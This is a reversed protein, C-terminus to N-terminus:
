QLSLIKYKKNQYVSTFDSVHTNSVIWYQIAYRRSLRKVDKDQLNQWLTDIREESNKDSITEDTIDFGLMKLRAAWPEAFSRDWLMAAGDKWTVFVSRKSLGRFMEPEEGMSPNVLFCAEIPTERKTWDAVEMISKSPTGMFIMKRHYLKYSGILVVILTLMMAIRVANGESFLNEWVLPISFLIVGGLILFSSISAWLFISSFFGIVRFPIHGEEDEEIKIAFMSILAIAGFCYYLDTGRAPHMILMVPSKIIYAAIFAFSLWGLGAITWTAGHKFLKRAKLRNQYLVAAVSFILIGFEIFTGRGWTLPYLHHPFRIRSATLWLNDNGSARGLSSLTLILAPSSLIVSLMLPFIWNKWRHRYDSDCLFALLFYTAAFAGYMSNLNFAISFWIAWYIRNDKHFAATALLLFAISLGTQEFYSTILTGTGLIPSPALAFLAMAGVMALRSKPAFASALQGAAFIVLLREILFGYLLLSELSLFRTGLAIIKWLMSPYYPLTAAFPDNPFLAPNNIAHVLPIQLAHNDRYVDYGTIALSSLFLLVIFIFLYSSSFYYSPKKMTLKTLCTLQEDAARTEKENM